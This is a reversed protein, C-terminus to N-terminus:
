DTCSIGCAKTKDYNGRTKQWEALRGDDDKEKAERDVSRAGLRGRKITRAM